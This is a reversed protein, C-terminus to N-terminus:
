SRADAHGFAVRRPEAPSDAFAFQGDPRAIVRGHKGAPGDTFGMRSFDLASGAEIELEPRLPIWEPGATIVVAPKAPAASEAANPVQMTVASSLTLVAWFRIEGM